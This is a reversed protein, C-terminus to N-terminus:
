SYLAHRHKFFAIRSLGEIKLARLSQARIKRMSASHLILGGDAELYVGVHHYLETGGIAVAAGEFPKDVQTWQDANQIQQNMERFFGKLDTELYNGLEVGYRAAYVHRVLGWCDFVDPGRGGWKWEKGIYSTAWHEVNCRPSVGDITDRM